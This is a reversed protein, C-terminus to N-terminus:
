LLLTLAWFKGLQAPVGTRGDILAVGAYDNCAALPTYGWIAPSAMGVTPSARCARASTGVKERGQEDSESTRIRPSRPTQSNRKTM